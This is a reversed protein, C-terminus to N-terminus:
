SEGLTWEQGTVEELSSLPGDWRNGLAKAEDGMAM